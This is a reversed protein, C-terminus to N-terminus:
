ENKGLEKEMYNLYCINCVKKNGLSKPFPSTKERTSIDTTQKGCEECEHYEIKQTSYIPMWTVVVNFDSNCCRCEVECFDDYFELNKFTNIKSCIPCKVEIM